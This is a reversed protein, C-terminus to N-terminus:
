FFLVFYCLKVFALSREYISKHDEACTSKIAWCVRLPPPSGLNLRFKSLQWTHVTYTQVTHIFYTYVDYIDLYCIKTCMVSLNQCALEWRRDACSCWLTGRRDVFGGLCVAAENSCENSEWADYGTKGYSRRSTQWCSSKSPFHARTAERTKVHAAWYTSL